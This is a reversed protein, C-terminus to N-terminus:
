SIHDMFQMSLTKVQKDSGCVKVIQSTGLTAYFDGVKVIQKAAWDEAEDKFIQSQHLVNNTSERLAGVLFSQVEMSGKAKEVM